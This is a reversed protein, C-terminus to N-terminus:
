FVYIYQLNYNSKKLCFIAINNVKNHNFKCYIKKLKNMNEDAPEDNINRHDKIVFYLYFIPSVVVYIITM